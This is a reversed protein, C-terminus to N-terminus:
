LVKAARPNRIWGGKPNKVWEEKTDMNLAKFVEEATKEFLRKNEEIQEPTLEDM